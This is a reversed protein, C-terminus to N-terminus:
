ARELLCCCEINATRPFMDIACVKSVSYGDFLRLDRALTAPDCSVYVIRKPSLELIKRIAARSLGSRPPDVTVCDPRLDGADWQSVDARLFEIFALGNQQANERAAVIADPDVEVGLAHGADRGIFLTMSGVGCFLDILTENKSLSAYERAKNFLLLAAGTNVQFFGSVSFVLGDLEEELPPNLGNRGSRLTVESDPPLSKLAANIDDKL